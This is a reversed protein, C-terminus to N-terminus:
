KGPPTLWVLFAVAASGGTIMAADINVKVGYLSLAWDVFPLMAMGISAVFKFELFKKKILRISKKTIRGKIIRAHEQFGILFPAMTGLIAIPFPKNLAYGAYICTILLALLLLPLTRTRSLKM